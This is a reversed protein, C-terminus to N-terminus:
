HPPSLLHVTHQTLYTYFSFLCGVVKLGTKLVIINILSHCKHVSLINIVNVLTLYCDVKPLSYRLLSFGLVKSFLSSFEKM